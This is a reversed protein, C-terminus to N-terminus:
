QYLDDLDETAEEASETVEPAKIADESTEAATDAATEPPTQPAATDTGGADATSGESIEAVTAAEHDSVESAQVAAEEASSQELAAQL